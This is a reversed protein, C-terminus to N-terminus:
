RFVCVRWMVCCIHFKADLEAPPAAGCVHKLPCGKHLVREQSRWVSDASAARVRPSCLLVDCLSFRSHSSCVRRKSCVVSKPFTRSALLHFPVKWGPIVFHHSAGTNTCRGDGNKIISRARDDCDLLASYQVCVSRDRVVLTAFMAECRRWPLECQQQQAWHWARQGRRTSCTRAVHSICVRALLSSTNPVATQVTASAQLLSSKKNNCAPHESSCAASLFSVM